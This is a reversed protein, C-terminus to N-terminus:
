DAALQGLSARMGALVGVTVWVSGWYFVTFGLYITLFTIIDLTDALVVDRKSLRGANTATLRVPLVCAGILCSAVLLSGPIGFLMAERLWLSDVSPPMWEPRFWNLTAGIGFIPSDLVDAGAADWIMMRFYGTGADLTLHNFIWGLPNSTALFIVSVVTALAGTLLLWKAPLQVIRCYYVLALGVVLGEWPASSISLLLGLGCGIRCLHKRWGELVRGLLLSYCMMIGYLIPHEFPGDARFFGLRYEALPDTPGDAFFSYGTIRALGQRLVHQDALVDLLGLFGAVSALLCFLQTVRQAQAGTRITARLALYSGAFELATVGAGKIAVDLGDIQAAAVIMWLTTVAFLLDAIQFRYRGAVLSEVFFFILAPFSFLLVARAPPLRLDFLFFGFAEPIFISVILLTAFINVRDADRRAALRAAIFKEALATPPM